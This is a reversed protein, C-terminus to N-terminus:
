IAEITLDVREKGLSNKLDTYRSKADYYIHSAFERKGDVWVVYVRM